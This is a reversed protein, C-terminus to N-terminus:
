RILRLPVKVMASGPEIGNLARLMGVRAHLMPGRDEAAMILAEVAAQWCPKRQEPKPLRQIYAAAERLTTIAKGSPLPIPDDFARSWSV